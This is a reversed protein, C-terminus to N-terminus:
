LGQARFEDASFEGAKDLRPPGSEEDDPDSDDYQHKKAEEKGYIAGLRRQRKKEYARASRVLWIALFTLVGFCGGVVVIAVIWRIGIPDIIANQFNDLKSNKAAITITFTLLLAAEAFFTLFVLLFAATRAGKSPNGFLRCKLAM